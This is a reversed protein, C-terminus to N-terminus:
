GNALDLISQILTFFGKGIFLVILGVVAWLLITRAKTVKGPNGGSTLFMIGSYIIIAVAIPLGIKYALDIIGNLLEMVTQSQLPNPFSFDAGPNAPPVGQGPGAPQNIVINSSRSIQKGDLPNGQSVPCYLVAYFTRNGPSRSPLTTSFSLNFSENRYTYPDFTRYDGRVLTDGWNNIDEYVGWWFRKVNVGCAVLFSSPSGGYITARFTVQVPTGISRPQIDFANIDGGSSQNAYSFLPVLIFAILFLPYIKYRM